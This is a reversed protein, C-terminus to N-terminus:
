LILHNCSQSRTDQMHNIVATPYYILGHLVALSTLISPHFLMLSPSIEVSPSADPSGRVWICRHM